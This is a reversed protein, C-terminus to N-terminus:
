GLRHELENMHDHLRDCKAHCGYFRPQRWSWAASVSIVVFVGCELMRRMCGKGPLGTAASEVTM